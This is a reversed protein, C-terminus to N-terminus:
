LPESYFTTTLHGKFHPLGEIGSVKDGSLVTRIISTDKNSPNSTYMRNTELPM